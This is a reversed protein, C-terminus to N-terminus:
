SSSPCNGFVAEVVLRRIRDWDFGTLGAVGVRGLEDEVKPAGVLGTLVRVLVLARIGIGCANNSSSGTKSICFGRVRTADLGALM